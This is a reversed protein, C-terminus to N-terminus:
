WEWGLPGWSADERVDHSNEELKFELAVGVGIERVM